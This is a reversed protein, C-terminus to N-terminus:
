IDSRTLWRFSVVKFRRGLAQNTPNLQDPATEAPQSADFYEPLRQVTAECWARGETAGTAPNVVDGYARILFTDSRPFLFPALATLIDAQTLWESSYEAIDENLQADEIAAEILSRGGFDAGPALFSAVDKAPGASSIRSRVRAAIANGLRNVQDASLLRTGRRFHHTSITPGTAASNTTSQTYTSDAKYTEPAAQSFRAFLAGGGDAQLVSTDGATGSAADLDLYRFEGAGIRSSALVASWAQSDVSNLNFAGGQLLFKSSRGMDVERVRRFSLPAGAGDRAVLTLLSNPLVASRDDDPVAADLGSFFFRDFIANGEVGNLSASNGAPNGLAFPPAAPLYFHQMEGMSVFPARPLQFLPVDENYSRGRTIDRDLLRDPSSITIFNAYAAPDPGYPVSVFAEAGLFPSRPDRNPASLWLGPTAPTDFSEALRMLFGLQSRKADARAPTTGPVRVFTPSEYTALVARDSRRVLRIQLTVEADTRVYIQDGREVTPDTGGLILLGDNFGGLDRSEFRGPNGDAALAAEHEFVWNHVRGPLWSAHDAWSASQPTWPLTVRFPEGYLNALSFTRLLEGNSERVVEVRAPLGSVELMLDEPVLASAYPNWLAAAWRLSLTYPDAGNEKRVGFLLYFYSLVPHIGADTAGVGPRIWYRRRLPDSSYAPLPGGSSPAAPDEMYSRYDAWAAFAPGLLDPRLSLDQRLGGRNTDALVAFNNPSWRHFNQQVLTVGVPTGATTRLLALQSTATLRHERLLAVNAPDRPELLPDGSASVAGPGLGIQQRIRSRLEASDYPPYTVQDLRDEVAVPAKVGQDGVWWGYRGIVTPENPARGPVAPTQIPQLRVAVHGPLNSPGVTQRGVLTVTDRDTPSLATAIDVPGVESGSVLWRPSEDADTRWVGTYHPNASSLAAATATVRRDPGAHRQLEALAVDLALLANERAQAQRQSNGSIATEIRTYLALAVLLAVVFALLTLTILLAFGASKARPRSSFGTKRRMNM